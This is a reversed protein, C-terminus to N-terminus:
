LWKDVIISQDVIDSNLNDMVGYMTVFTLKISKKTKTTKKFVDIKNLLKMRYEKTIEYEFDSYKMECLNIVNDKRDILLDIQAGRESDRKTFSYENTSLGSIGLTEKILAVHNLSFIEFAHGIWSYYKPTGVYNLWSSVNGNLAETSPSFVPHNICFFPFSGFSSNQDISFPRQKRM